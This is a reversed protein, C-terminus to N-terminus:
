STDQSDKLRLLCCCKYMKGCLGIFPVSEDVSLHAIGM